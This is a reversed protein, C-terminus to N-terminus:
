FPYEAVLKNAIKLHGKENWHMDGPIFFQDMDETPKEQIFDPFFNILDLDHAQAFAEWVVEHKGKLENRDIQIPWPYIGLSLKIGRSKCLTVLKDMNERAMDLGKQGWENFMKENVTWNRIGVTPDGHIYENAQELYNVKKVKEKKIRTSRYKQKLAYVRNVILSHSLLFSKCKRKFSDKWSPMTPNFQYFRHEDLVDSLDIFAIVEDVKIKEVELLYKVKLYYLRPSYGAVGANYINLEPFKKKVLGVFTKEYPIGIGETFSDGVFLISKKGENLRPHNLPPCKFGIEDTTLQYKNSGWVDEGKFNEALSHHYYWHKIRPAKKMLEIKDIFVLGASFDLVFFVIALFGLITITPHKEFFNKKM